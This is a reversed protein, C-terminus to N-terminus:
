NKLLKNKLQILEQTTLLNKLSDLEKLSLLNNIPIKLKDIVNAFSRYENILNINEERLEMEYIQLFLRTSLHKNIKIYSNLIPRKIRYDLGEDICLKKTLRGIKAWLNIKPQYNDGYLESYKDILDLNIKKISNLFYEKQGKEIYLGGALVFKGGNIKTKFIIKKLVTKDDTLYPIIPMLATGTYIGEKSLINMADYRLKLSPTFPELFKKLNQYNILSEDMNISFVVCVWSKKQIKKLLDIDRIVLPSKTIIMVPFEHSLCVELMKRSLSYKKEAFQYDGIIIVEKANQEKKQKLERDLIEPSNTKVVIKKSFDNTIGYSKGRLFCYSCGHSCGVYPSASYKSWFWGGDVYNNERLVNQTIEEVYKVENLSQNM